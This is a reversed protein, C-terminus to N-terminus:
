LDSLTVLTGRESVLYAQHDLMTLSSANRPDAKAVGLRVETGHPTQRYFEKVVKDQDKFSITVSQRQPYDWQATVTAQDVDTAAGVSSLTSESFRDAPTDNFEQVLSLARQMRRLLAPGPDALSNM